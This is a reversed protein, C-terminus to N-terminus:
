DNTEGTIIYTFARNLSYGHGRDNQIIDVGMASRTRKVLGRVSGHSLAVGAGRAIELYDVTGPARHLLAILKHAPVSMLKFDGDVFVAPQALDIRITPGYHDHVEIWAEPDLKRIQSGMYEIFADHQKQPIEATHLTITTM